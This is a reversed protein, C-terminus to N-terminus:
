KKSNVSVINTVVCICIQDRRSHVSFSSIFFIKITQEHFVRTIVEFANDRFSICMSPFSSNTFSTITKSSSGLRLHITSYMCSEGTTTLDLITGTPITEYKCRKDKEKPFVVQAEHPRCCQLSARWRKVPSIIEDPLDIYCIVLSSM